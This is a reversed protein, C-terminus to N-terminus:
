LQGVTTLVQHSDHSRRTLPYAIHSLLQSIVSLTVYDTSCSRILFSISRTKVTKAKRHHSPPTASTVM